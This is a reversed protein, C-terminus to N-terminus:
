KLLRSQSGRTSTILIRIGYIGKEFHGHLGKVTPATIFIEVPLDYEDGEKPSTIVQLINSKPLLDPYLACSSAFNFVLDDEGWNLFNFTINHSKLPALIWRVHLTNNPLFEDLCTKAHVEPYVFIITKNTALPGALDVASPCGRKNSISIGLDAISDALEWLVM